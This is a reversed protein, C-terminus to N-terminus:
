VSSQKHAWRQELEWMASLAVARLRDRKREASARAIVRAVMGNPARNAARFLRVYREDRDAELADRVRTWEGGLSDAVIWAITPVRAERVRAAIANADFSSHRPVRELDQLSWPRALELKDKFVNVLMLVVHDTFDPMLARFGLADSPTARALLDRTTLWCVYRPGIYGEVDVEVGDIVLTHNKYVRSSERVHWGRNRALEAVRAHDEPLVRVDVDFMPRESPDDYLLASTVIGKVLVAPIKEQEFAALVTHAVALRRERM